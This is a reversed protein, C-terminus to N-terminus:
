RINVRCHVLVLLHSAVPPRHGLPNKVVDDDRPFISKVEKETQMSVGGGVADTPTM